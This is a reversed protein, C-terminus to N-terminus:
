TMRDQLGHLDAAMDHGSWELRMAEDIHAPKLESLSQSREERTM